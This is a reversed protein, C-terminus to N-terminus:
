LYVCTIFSVDRSLCHIFRSTNSGIFILIHEGSPHVVTILPTLGEDLDCDQAGQVKSGLISWVVCRALKENPLLFITSVEDWVEVDM